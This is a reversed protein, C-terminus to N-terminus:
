KTQYNNLNLTEKSGYMIFSVYSSIDWISNFKPYPIEYLRKYGVAEHAQYLSEESTHFVFYGDTSEMLWATMLKYIGSKRHDLSVAVSIISSARKYNAGLLITKGLHVTKDLHYLYLKYNALIQRGQKSCLLLLSVFVNIIFLVPHFRMPKGAISAMIYGLCVNNDIALIVFNNQRSVYDTLCYWICLWYNFISCGEFGYDWAKSNIKCIDLLYKLPLRNKTIIEM